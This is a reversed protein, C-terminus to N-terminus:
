PAEVPVATVDLEAEVATVIAELNPTAKFYFILDYSGNRLLQQCEWVFDEEDITRGQHQNSAFKPDDTGSYVFTEADTVQEAILEGVTITLETMAMDQQGPIETHVILGDLATEGPEILRKTREYLDSDPHETSM